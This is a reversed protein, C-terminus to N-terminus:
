KAPAADSPAPAAAPPEAPAPAAPAGPNAEPPKAPATTGTEAPKTTEEKKAGKATKGAKEAAGITVKLAEWNDGSKTASGRVEEGATIATIDAAAGDKTIVTKDTLSFVRDKQKGKITFTKATADVSAVKGHYPIPKPATEGADAAAKKPAASANFPAGVALAALLAVALITKKNMTRLNTQNTTVPRDFGGPLLSESFPSDLQSYPSPRVRRADQEVNKKLFSKAPRKEPHFAETFVRCETTCEGPLKGAVISSATRKWLRRKDKPKESRTKSAM